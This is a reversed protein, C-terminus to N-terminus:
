DPSQQFTACPSSQVALLASGAPPSHCGRPGHTGQFAGVAEAGPKRKAAVQHARCPGTPFLLKGGAVARQAGKRALPRRSTVANDEGQRGWVGGEAKNGFTNRVRSLACAQCVAGGGCLSRSLALCEPLLALCPRGGGCCTCRGVAPLLRLRGQSASM